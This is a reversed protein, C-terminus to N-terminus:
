KFSVEVKTGLNVSREIKWGVVVLNGTFFVIKSRDGEEEEEERMVRGQAAEEEGQQQKM